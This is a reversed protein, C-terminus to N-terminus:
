AECIPTREGRQQEPIIHGSVKRRERVLLYLVRLFTTAGMIAPIQQGTAVLGASGTTGIVHNWNLTLEVTVAILFMSILNLAQTLYVLRTIRRPLITLLVRDASRVISSKVRCNTDVYMTQNIPLGMRSGVTRFGEWFRLTANSRSSVRGIAFRLFAVIAIATIVTYYLAVVISSFRLFYRVSKLIELKGFFFIVEECPAQELKTIGEFWFWVGFISVAASLFIRFYVGFTSLRFPEEEKGEENEVATKSTRRILMSTRYGFLSLVSFFYGYSLEFLILADISGIRMDITGKTVTVFLALLFISNTDLNASIEGPLLLNSLYSGLWQFYIGAIALRDSERVVLFCFSALQLFTGLRVGLGYLDPDGQIECTGEEPIGTEPDIKVANAFMIFLFMSLAYPHQNSLWQTSARSLLTM